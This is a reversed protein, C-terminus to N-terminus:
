RFSRLTVQFLILEVSQKPNNKLFGMIGWCRTPWADSYLQQRSQPRHEGVVARFYCRLLYHLLKQCHRLVRRLGFSM